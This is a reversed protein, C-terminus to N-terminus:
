KLKEEKGFARYPDFEKFIIKLEEEEKNEKFYQALYYALGPALMFGQGCMGSAIFLNKIKKSFGVLPNGDPTMPYMGAWTRRVRINVLRPVLSVMRRTAIPLFSSTESVDFGLRPRKPTLCFIIQGTKHQYFYFNASDETERIDVLMPDLFHKVPETIGAEHVDPMVPIEEGLLSQVKNAWGGSANIVIDGKLTQKNTKVEKISGDSVNFGVVETDFLFVVKNKKAERYFSNITLLPSASGDKPSFTGGRLNYQNLSPIKELLADRELYDIELGVSQQFKVLERLEKETNKDYALFSYGGRYWEINHKKQWNEFIELSKKGVIIKAPNSHTARIGGIAAKNSGQGVSKKKEIVLVTAGTLSLYYALPVGVSGAGIIVFDYRNM